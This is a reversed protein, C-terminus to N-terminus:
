KFHLKANFKYFNHTLLQMSISLDQQNSKNESLACLSFKNLALKPFLTQIIETALKSYEFLFTIYFQLSKIINKEKKLNLNKSQNAKSITVICSCANNVVNMDFVASSYLTLM